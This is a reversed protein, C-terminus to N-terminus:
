PISNGRRHRKYLFLKELPFLSQTELSCNRRLREMTIKIIRRTEDPGLGYEMAIERELINPNQVYGKVIRLNREWNRCPRRSSPPHADAGELIAQELFRRAFEIREENVRRFTGLEVMLYVM